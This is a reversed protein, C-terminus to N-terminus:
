LYVFVNTLTLKTSDTIHINFVLLMYYKLLGSKRSIIEALVLYHKRIIIGIFRSEFVVFLFSNQLESFGLKIGKKNEQIM